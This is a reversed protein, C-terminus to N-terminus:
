WDTSEVEVATALADEFKSIMDEMYNNTQVVYAPYKEAEYRPDDKNEWRSVDYYSSREWGIKSVVYRYKGDKFEFKLKYSVFGQGVTNGKKDTLKIKFRAKCSISNASDKSKITGHPNPYFENIWLMTREYLDGNSAGSVNVVDTYEALGTKENVPIINDQAFTNFGFGLILILIVNKM